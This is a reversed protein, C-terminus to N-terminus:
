KDLEKLLADAMYISETAVTDAGSHTWTGHNDSASSLLGKMAAMAFAERKTLGLYHEAEAYNGHGHTITIPAAPTDANKIM